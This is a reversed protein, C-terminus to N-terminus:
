NCVVRDISVTVDGGDNTQMMTFSSFNPINPDLSIVNALNLVAIPSTGVTAESNSNLEYGDGSLHTNQHIRFAGQEDVRKVFHTNGTLVANEIDTTCPNDLTWTVPVLTSTAGDAHVLNAGILASAALMGSSVLFILDRRGLRTVRNRVSSSVEGVKHALSGIDIGKLREM